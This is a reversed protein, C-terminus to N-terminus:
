RRLVSTPRNLADYSNQLTQSNEDTQTLVLGTGLDYTASSQLPPTTNARTVSDPYAYKTTASFVWTKQQCCDVQATLLNGLTDYTLTRDIPGSPTTLNPVKYRTTKTINGRTAFGSGYNTDDHQPGGSVSTLGSGGYSDYTYATQSKLNNSGDSVYAASPRDLIHLNSYATSTLYDTHTRRIASTGYDGEYVDTVNGNSDYTFSVGATQGSDNLTTTSSLVRPNLPTSQSTNDQTWSNNTTRYTTSGSSIAVASTLGTQWGSTYLYTTTTTSFPNSIAFSSTVGTSKTVAYTWSNESTGDASVYQHQYTPHDSLASTAAPYDYRVYSRVTGNASKRSIKNVIGWDGYTFAFSIGFGTGAANPYACSTLVTIASGSAQSDLVPLSFSYNLTSSTWGFYAVTKATGGPPTVTISQLRPTSSTDYIFTVVRNVTDTITAIAQKGAGVATSYAISIYNGNTDLIKIPRYFTASSPVQQYTWQTGDKRRLIMTSSNWDAYSSDVTVYTTGSSFRLERKTGDPETLLYSTQGSPPAEILGYGLHFGYSPYDRDANFTATGGAVDITWVSSNYFLALNVDLGNRGPLSLIPTAYSYSESGPLASAPSDTTM